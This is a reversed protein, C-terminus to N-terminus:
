SNPIQAHRRENREVVRINQVGRLKPVKQHVQREGTSKAGLPGSSCRYEFGHGKFENSRSM